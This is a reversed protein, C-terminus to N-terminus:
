HPDPAARGQQLRQIRAQVSSQSPDIALLHQLTTVADNWRGQREYFDALFRYAKMFNPRLRLAERFEAEAEGIKGARGLGYGLYLRTEPSRPWLSVAHRLHAIGDDMHGRKVQALGLNLYAFAYPGLEVAREFEALAEVPRGASELALAYNM